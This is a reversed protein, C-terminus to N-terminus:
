LTLRLNWEILAHAESGIECAKALEKQHAKEAGLRRKLTEMFALRGMKPGQTPLDEYLLAAARMVLEREANAAWNVLAPKAIVSLINTVSPFKEGDPLAYFRGRRDTEVRRVNTM